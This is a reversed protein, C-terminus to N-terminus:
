YTEGDEELLSVGNLDTTLVDTMYDVFPRVAKFHRQILAEFDESLVQKDTFKHQFIWQKHNILDIAQHDRDFGRPATKLTQGRMEGWHEVFDKATIIARIEEDDLEWEKRVRNLDKKEPKWFGAGIFSNGGPELHLYYGGRLAPKQRIFNASLYTKYPTKDKSFRIDRYIRYAKTSQIRDHESLGQAVLQYFAKVETELAKFEAKHAKFWERNNATKLESLFAFLATPIKM